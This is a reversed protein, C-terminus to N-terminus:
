KQALRMLVALKKHIKEGNQLNLVKNACSIHYVENNESLGVYLITHFILAHCVNKWITERLRNELKKAVINQYIAETLIRSEDVTSASLVEQAVLLLM